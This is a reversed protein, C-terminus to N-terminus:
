HLEDSDCTAELCYVRTRHRRRPPRTAGVEDQTLFTENQLPKLYIEFLCTLDQLVFLVILENFSDCLRWRDWERDIAGGGGKISLSTQPNLCSIRM